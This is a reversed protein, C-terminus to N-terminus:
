EDASDLITLWNNPWMSLVKPCRSASTLLWLQSLKFSRSSYESTLVYYEYQTIKTCARELGARYNKIKIYTTLSNM